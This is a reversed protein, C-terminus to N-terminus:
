KNKEQEEKEEILFDNEDIHSLSAIGHAAIIGIFFIYNIIEAISYYKIYRIIEDDSYKSEDINFKTKFKTRFSNIANNNTYFITVFCGCITIFTYLIETFTIWIYCHLLGLYFPKKTILGIFFVTLFILAVIDLFNLYSICYQFVAKLIYLLIVFLTAKKISNATNLLGM